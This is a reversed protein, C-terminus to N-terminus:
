DCLLFYGKLFFQFGSAYLTQPIVKLNRHEQCLNLRLLRVRDALTKSAIDGTNSKELMMAMEKLM